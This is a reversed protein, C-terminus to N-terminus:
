LCSMAYICRNDTACKSAPLIPSGVYVYRPDVCVCKSLRSVYYSGYIPMEDEPVYISQCQTEGQQVTPVDAVGEFSRTDATFAWGINPHRGASSSPMPPQAGHAANPVQSPLVGPAFGYSMQFGINPSSGGANANASNTGGGAGGMSWGLGSGGVGASPVLSSVGSSTESAPQGGYTLAASNHWGYGNSRWNKPYKNLSTM